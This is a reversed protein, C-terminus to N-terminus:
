EESPWLERWQDKIQNALDGLSVKEPDKIILLLQRPRVSQSQDQNDHTDRPVPGSLSAQERPFVLVTLRLKPATSM